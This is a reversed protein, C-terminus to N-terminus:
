VWFTVLDDLLPSKKIEYNRTLIDRSLVKIEVLGFFEPAKKNNARQRKWIWFWRNSM